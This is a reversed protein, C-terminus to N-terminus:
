TYVCLLSCYHGRVLPPQRIVAHKSATLFVASATLMKLGRQM